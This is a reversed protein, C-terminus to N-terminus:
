QRSRTWLTSRPLHLWWCFFRWGWFTLPYVIIAYKRSATETVMGVGCVTRGAFLCVRDLFGRGQFKKRHIEIIHMMFLAPCPYSSVTLLPFQRKTLFVDYPAITRELKVARRPYPIPSDIFTQIPCLGSHCM